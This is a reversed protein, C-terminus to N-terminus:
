STFIRIFYIFSKLSSYHLTLNIERLDNILNVECETVYKKRNEIKSLDMKNMEIIKKTQNIIIHKCPLVIFLVM